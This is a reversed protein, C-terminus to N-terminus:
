ATIARRGNGNFRISAAISNHREVGLCFVRAEFDLISSGKEIVNGFKM